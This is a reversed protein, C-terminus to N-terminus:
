KFPTPDKRRRVRRPSNIGTGTSIASSAYSYRGRHTMSETRAYPDVAHDGNKVGPSSSPVPPVPVGRGQYMGTYNGSGARHSVSNSMIQYSNPRANDGGFGPIKSLPSHTPLQPPVAPINPQQNHQGSAGRKKLMKGADTSKQRRLFGFSTRREGNQANQPHNANGNGTGNSNANNPSAGSPPSNDKLPPPATSM